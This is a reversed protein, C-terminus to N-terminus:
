FSAGVRNDTTEQSAQVDQFDRYDLSEVHALFLALRHRQTALTAL